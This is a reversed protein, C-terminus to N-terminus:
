FRTDLIRNVTPPPPIGAHSASIWAWVWPSPHATHGPPRGPPTDGLGCEPTLNFLRALPDGPGFGRPTDWCASLCIGRGRGWCVAVAVPPVCGVPIYEQKCSTKPLFKVLYMPVRCRPNTCGERSFHQHVM